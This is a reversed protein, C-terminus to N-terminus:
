CTREPLNLPARAGRFRAKVSAVEDPADTVSQQVRKRWDKVQAEAHPGYPQPPANLKRGALALDIVKGRRAMRVRQLAGLRPVPSDPRQLDRV